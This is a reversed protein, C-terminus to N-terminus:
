FPMNSSLNQYLPVISTQIIIIITSYYCFLFVGEHYYVHTLQVDTDDIIEPLMQFNNHEM